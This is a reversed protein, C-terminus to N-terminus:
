KKATKSAFSYFSTETVILHDVLPIGILKGVEILKKTIRVDRRSPTPDGSPHNHAIILSHARYRIALSFLERPHMLVQDLTGKAIIEKRIARKKVDLLLVAAMELQHDEFLSIIEDYAKQASLIPDQAIGSSKLRKALSFAALLKIAKANGLGPIEELEHVTASSIAEVTGFHNILDQAVDIASKGRTGVGILIALLEVTSLKAAGEQLFRERPQLDPPLDKIM